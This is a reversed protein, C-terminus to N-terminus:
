EKKYAIAKQFLVLKFAATIGHLSESHGLFLYGGSKLLEFFKELVKKKSALDFYILVNRCFLIDIGSVIADDLNLLNIKKFKVNQKYADKIEFEKASIKHFCREIIRPDTTRLSYDNYVGRVAKNLVSQNIDTALIEIFWKNGSNNLSNLYDNLIISITYAEEGSSCGASWIRLSKLKYNDSENKKFIEPLIEDKLVNFQPENRFFSTENITIFDYLLNMEDEKNESYKLYYIYDTISKINLQEMRSIIKDEILYKKEFRFYIGCNSYIFDRLFCFEQESIEKKKQESNVIL